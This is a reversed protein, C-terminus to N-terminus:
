SVRSVHAAIVANVRRAEIGLNPARYREALASLSAFSAESVQSVVSWTRRERLVRCGELQIGGYAGHLRRGKVINPFKVLM